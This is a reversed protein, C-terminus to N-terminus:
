DICGIIILNLHTIIQMTESHPQKLYKKNKVFVKNLYKHLANNNNNNNNIISFVIKKLKCFYISM